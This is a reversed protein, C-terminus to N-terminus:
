YIMQVAYGEWLGHTEGLISKSLWHTMEDKVWQPLDPTLEKYMNAMAVALEMAETRTKSM